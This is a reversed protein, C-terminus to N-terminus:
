REAKKAAKKLAKAVKRAQAPTLSAYANAGCDAVTLGIIGGEVVFTSMEAVVAVTVAEDYRDTLTKSYTM